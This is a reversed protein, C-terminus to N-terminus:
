VIRLSSGTNIFIPIVSAIYDYRKFLCGCSHQTYFSIIYKKQKCDQAIHGAGGCISCLITNTIITQAEQYQKLKSFTFACLFFLSMMCEANKINGSIFVIMLCYLSLICEVEPKNM